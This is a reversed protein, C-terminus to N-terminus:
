LLERSTEVGFGGSFCQSFFSLWRRWFWLRRRRSLIGEWTWGPLWGGAGLNYSMSWHPFLFLLAAVLLGACLVVRRAISLNDKTM